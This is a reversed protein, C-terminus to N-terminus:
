GGLVQAAVDWGLGCAVLGALVSGVLNLVASRVAGGEVLRMTEYGFTSFTTLAGCIGTGVFTAAAPGLSGTAAAAGVAGLVASGTVNVWWTGWPFRTGYRHQIGLDTLYRAVAGIAGGLLVLTASM